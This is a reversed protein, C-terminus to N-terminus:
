SSFFGTGVKHFLERIKVSCRLHFLGYVYPPVPPSIKYPVFPWSSDLEWQNETPTPHRVATQTKTFRGRPSIVSKWEGALFYYDHETAFFICINEDRELRKFFCLHLLKADPLMGLATELM